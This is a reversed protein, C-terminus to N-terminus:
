IQNLLSLMAGENLPTSGAEDRLVFFGKTFATRNTSGSWPDWRYIGFKQPIFTAQDNYSNPGDRNVIQVLPGDGVARWIRMYPRQAPDWHFRVKFVFKHWQSTSPGTERWVTASQTDGALTVANPNWKVTFNWGGEGAYMSFSSVRQTDGPDNVAHFDLLSASGNGAQLMDPDLKIAWAMWYDVGRTVNTGDNSWNASVESRFTAGDWTPFRNSIRHRFAAKTPAVPDVVRSLTFDDSSGLIGPESTDALQGNPKVVQRIPSWKRMSSFNMRPDVWYIVRPDTNAPAVAVTAPASTDAPKSASPAASALTTPLGPASVM